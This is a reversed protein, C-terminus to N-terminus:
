DVLRVAYRSSGEAVKDTAAGIFRGHVEGKKTTYTIYFHAIGTVRVESRGRAAAFSRAAILPITVVRRTKEPAKAAADYRTQDGAILRNITEVTPGAMNGPKTELVDGVAVSRRAGNLISDVYDNAGPGDLALAQFNGNSGRGPGAKIVYERETNICKGLVLDTDPIGFPRPGRKTTTATVEATAAAAITPDDIQLLKGLLLPERGHIRV